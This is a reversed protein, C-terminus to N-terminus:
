FFRRTMYYIAPGVAVGILHASHGINDQSGVSNLEQFIHTLVFPAIIVIELLSQWDTRRKNILAIAFFAFVVGSAGLSVGKIPFFLLFLLNVIVITLLYIILIQRDSLSEEIYRGFFFIFFMNGSIHIFDGHCFGSSILQHFQWNQHDLYLFRLDLFLDLCYIIYNILILFYINKKKM